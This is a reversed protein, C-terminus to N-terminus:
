IDHDDMIFNSLRYEPLRAETIHGIRIPLESDSDCLSKIYQWHAQETEMHEIMPDFAGDAITIKPQEATPDNDEQLEEDCEPTATEDEELFEAMQKIMQLDHSATQPSFYFLGDNFVAEMIEYFYFHMGGQVYTLKDNISVGMTTQDFLSNKEFNYSVLAQRDSIVVPVNKICHIDGSISYHERDARKYGNATSAVEIDFYRTPIRERNFYSAFDEGQQIEQHKFARHVSTTRQIGIWDFLAQTQSPKRIETIYSMVDIDLYASLLPAWPEIALFIDSLTTDEEILVHHRFYKLLFFPDAVKLCDQIALLPVATLDDYDSRFRLISDKCFILVGDM